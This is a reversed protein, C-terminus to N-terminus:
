GLLGAARSGQGRAEQQARVDNPEGDDAPCAYRREDFIASRIRRIGQRRATWVELNVAGSTASFRTALSRTGGQGQLAVLESLGGRESPWQHIERRTAQVAFGSQGEARRSLRRPQIQYHDPGCASVQGACIRARCRIGLGAM